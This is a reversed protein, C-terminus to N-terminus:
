PKRSRASAWSAMSRSRAGAQVRIDKFAATQFGSLEFSVTYLGIPIAPIRYTGQDSTTTARAGGLITPGSVTVTVGPLLAGSSDVARGQLVGTQEQAARVSAA